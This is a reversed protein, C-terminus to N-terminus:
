GNKVIVGSPEGRPTFPGVAGGFPERGFSQSPAGELARPARPQRDRAFAVAAEIRSADLGVQAPARREWGEAPPVYRAPGRQALVAMPAALAVLMLLKM